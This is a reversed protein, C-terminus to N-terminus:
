ASQAFNRSFPGMDEKWWRMTLNPVYAMPFFILEDENKGTAETGVRFVEKVREANPWDHFRLGDHFSRVDVWFTYGIPNSGPALEREHNKAAEVLFWPKATRLAYLGPGEDGQDKNQWRRMKYYHDYLRKVPPVDFPASYSSNITIPLSGRRERVLPALEPPTFLYVPTRVTGLFNGLWREHEENSRRSDNLPFFATVLLIENAYATVDPSASDGDDGHYRLPDPVTKFGQLNPSLPFRDSSYYLLGISLAVLLFSRVRLPPIVALRRM